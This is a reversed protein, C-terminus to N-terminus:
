NPFWELIWFSLFYDLILVTVSSFVVAKTTNKGVGEAGNHTTYGMYACILTLVYAFVTAKILGQLIDPFDVILKMHHIFPGEPINLLHIGVMYAGLIGIIDFIGTLLPVMVLSALTRPVVLYQIPNVGMTKLADIQETVQMTGIEAAMGSGARAVIMLATFVPALERCLAIAVTSGVISEAQFSRFAYGTQLAFVMGSFAGVLSIIALSQIGIKEMQKLLVQYRFPSRFTWLIVEYCFLSFRGFADLLLTLRLKLDTFVTTM